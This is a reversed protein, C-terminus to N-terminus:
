NLEIALAPYTTNPVQAVGMYKFEWGPIVLCGDRYGCRLRHGDIELIFDDLSEAQYEVENGGCGGAPSIKINNM